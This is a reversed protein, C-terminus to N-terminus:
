PLLAPPLLPEAARPSDVKSELGVGCGDMLRKGDTSKLRGEGVNGRKEGMETGKEM